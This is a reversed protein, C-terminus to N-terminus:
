FVEECDSEPSDLEELAELSDFYLESCLDLPLYQALHTCLIGLLDIGVLIGDITYEDRAHYRKEQYTKAPLEQRCPHEEVGELQDGVHWHDVGVDRGIQM